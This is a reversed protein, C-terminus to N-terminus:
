EALWAEAYVPRHDSTIPDDIVRVNDFRWKSAPFGFIFDIEMRPELSTITFRDQAPKKAESAGNALLKVTRSDPVDNFDGMLLYPHPLQDLYKRLAQAQAFRFNDDRVWDFHINVVTITQGAPLQITTAVAVRPENGEPLKVVDTSEIPLKSLVALGYRGGQYDMFPGFAHQMGLQKGMEAAQDVGGSRKAKEDVEQLGVIDLSYRDLRDITRSLDTKDDNGLGRKINYSMVRLPEPKPPTQRLTATVPYHDSPSRGDRATRDINATLIDWNGATAIWDIRAGQVVGARFNSFTAEGAADDPKSKAYVDTFIPLDPGDKDASARTSKDFMTAYPKTDAGANFDGTLLIDCGHGILAAKQRILAASKQRAEAGRHDFHTNIFLIPRDTEGRRDKLRVWSAIRPLSSDWSISGKVDPTESLWFHGEDLKEFRDTKFFVTTMEGQDSGDDRGVGVVTYAPLKNIVFDRQFGLTEQTGLLDPDFAAITEAVFERRNDWHNDGDSATGFRLNFTMVRIDDATATAASAAMAAFMFALSLLSFSRIM